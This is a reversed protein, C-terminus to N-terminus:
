IEWDPERHIKEMKNSLLYLAGIIGNVKCEYEIPDYAHISIVRGLSGHMHKNNGYYLFEDGEKFTEM